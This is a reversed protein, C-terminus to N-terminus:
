YNCCVSKKLINKFNFEKYIIFKLKNNNEKFLLIGCVKNNKEM